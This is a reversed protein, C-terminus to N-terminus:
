NTIMAVDNDNRRMKGPMFQLIREGRESGREIESGQRIRVKDIVLRRPLGYSFTANKPGAVLKRLDLWVAYFNTRVSPQAVTFNLIADRSRGVEPM